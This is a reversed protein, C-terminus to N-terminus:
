RRASCRAGLALVQQVLQRFNMRRLTEWSDRVFTTVLSAM